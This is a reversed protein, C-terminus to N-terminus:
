SSSSEEDYVSWSADDCGYIFRTMIYIAAAPEGAFLSRAATEVGLAGGRLLMGLGPTGLVGFRPIRGSTGV